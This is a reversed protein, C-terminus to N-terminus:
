EDVRHRRRRCQLPSRSCRRILGEPSNSNGKPRAYERDMFDRARRLHTLNALEEPTMPGAYEPGM